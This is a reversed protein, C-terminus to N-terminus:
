HLDAHGDYDVRLRHEAVARALSEESARERASQLEASLGVLAAKIDIDLPRDARGEAWDIV